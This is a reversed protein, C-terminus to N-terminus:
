AAPSAGAQAEGPEESVKFGNLQLAIPFLKQEVAKFHTIPLQLLEEFSKGLSAALVKRGWEAARKPTAAEDGTFEEQIKLAAGASMETLEYDVGDITETHKKFEM